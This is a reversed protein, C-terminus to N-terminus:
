KEIGCKIIVKLFHFGDKIPNLKSRGIRESYEIPVEAVKFGKKLVKTTMEVEWSLGESEIDIEKLINKRFARFGTSADTIERGTLLSVVRTFFLNGYKRWFSMNKIGSKFRSGLVVDQGEKVAKVLNPISDAKYTSDGDITVIIDGRAKNFGTNLAVGKGRNKEHRIIHVNSFRKAIDYTRDISGDDVVIIEYDNMKINSLDNLVSGIADEENYTPVIISIKM